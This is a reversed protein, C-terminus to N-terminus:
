DECIRCVVEFTEEFQEQLFDAHEPNITRYDKLGERTIAIVKSDVPLKDTFHATVIIIEKEKDRDVVDLLMEHWLPHALKDMEHYADFFDIEGNIYRDYIKLFEDFVDRILIKYEDFIDDSTKIMQMRKKVEMSDMNFM